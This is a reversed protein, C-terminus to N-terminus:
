SRVFIKPYILFGFFDRLDDGRGILSHLFHNQDLLRQFTGPSFPEVYDHKKLKRAYLRMLFGAFFASQSEVHKMILAEFCEKTLERNGILESLGTSTNKSYMGFSPLGDPEM